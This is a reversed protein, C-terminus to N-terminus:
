KRLNFIMGRSLRSLLPIKTIPIQCIMPIELTIFDHEVYNFGNRYLLRYFAYPNWDFIHDLHTGTNQPELEIDKFLGKINPWLQKLISFTNVANPTSIILNGGPKLVRMIEKLFDVPSDVHEIVEMFFVLDFHNSPLEKNLFNMEKYNLKEKNCEVHNKLDNAIDIM